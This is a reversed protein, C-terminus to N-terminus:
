PLRQTKIKEIQEQSCRNKPRNEELFWEMKTPCDECPLTGAYACIPIQVLGSPVGWPHNSENALLRRMIGNWIPAAGTVGSAIRAMPSNDNNGVWVAALYKQNFGVTLNDKLNNSTGTKVAVEPHAPIILQSHSGFSPARANNDRLIDILIFAVRPDLIQEQDCRNETTAEAAYITDILQNTSQSTGKASLCESEELVKGKYNTISLISTIDPRKGFNAVVAYAKALDILKVEGGGLTLSLGFRSPDDWTTIGMKRGQGIM